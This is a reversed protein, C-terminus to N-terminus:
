RLRLRSVYKELKYKFLYLNVFVRYLGTMLAVKLCMIDEKLFGSAMIKTVTIFFEFPLLFLPFIIRLKIKLPWDNIKYNYKELDAFNYTYYKAQLKVWPLWKSKFIRFSYNYYDPRHELLLNVKEVKGDTDAVYQPIGLFSLKEKRYVCKKYPWKKTVYKKKDWIPWLFEYADVDKNEVLYKIENKLEDSLFEDADIQLIWEGSALKYSDPRHHEAIGIYKLVHIKETYKKAIELTNDSCEGDHIFIIEDVVDKISGLCRAINKEENHAVICASIRNM